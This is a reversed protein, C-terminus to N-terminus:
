TLPPVDAVTVETDIRLNPSAPIGTGQIDRFDASFLIAEVVNSIPIERRWETRCDLTLSQRFLKDNRDDTESPPGINIPRISIGIDILDETRLETFTMAIIEVLDDRSRLSRTMVDIVVSGEWAGATYLYKPRSVNTQNGYGDVYIVDEHWVGYKDRNFSIPVSKSGGNKVLIAPYYVVDYRYNEGIFLRTSLQNTLSLDPNSGAGYPM